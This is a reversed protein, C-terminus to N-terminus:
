GCRRCKTSTSRARYVLSMASQEPSPDEVPRGHSASHIIRRPPRSWSLSPTHRKATKAGVGATSCRAWKKVSGERAKHRPVGAMLLADYDTDHHRISAVVALEM